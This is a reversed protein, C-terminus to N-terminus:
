RATLARLLTRDILSPARRPAALAANAAAEFGVAFRAPDWGAIIERSARGMAARDCDDSAIKVMADAMAEVDLPDFTFGNRGENVLDRACGCRKSVLVPLGSAMAENVVLGWQDMTSPLIFAGALGYFHPLVPYGKAGVLHAAGGLGLAGIHSEIESKMQGPGAIVLDWPAGAV